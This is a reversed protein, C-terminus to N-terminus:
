CADFCCDLWSIISLTLGAPYVNSVLVFYKSDCLVKGRGGFGEKNSLPISAHNASFGLFHWTILHDLTIVCFHFLDFDRWELVHHSGCLM